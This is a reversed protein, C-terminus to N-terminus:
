SAGQRAPVVANPAAEFASEPAFWRFMGFGQELCEALWIIDTECYEIAGHGPPGGYPEMETIQPSAWVGVYRFPAGTKIREAWWGSVVPDTAGDVSIPVALRGLETRARSVDLASLAREGDRFILPLTPDLLVWSQSAPSWYEACFHGDFSGIGATLVVARAAIDFLSLAHVLLVSKHVCMTVAPRADVGTGAHGWDLILNPEWPAYMLRDASSAYNVQDCAWKTLEIATADTDAPNLNTTATRRIRERL